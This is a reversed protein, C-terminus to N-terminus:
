REFSITSMRLVLWCRGGVWIILHLSSDSRVKHGSTWLDRTPLQHTNHWMAVSVPDWQLHESRWQGAPVSLCVAVLWSIERSSPCPCVCALQFTSIRFLRLVSFKTLDSTNHGLKNTVHRSVGRPAAPSQLRWAQCTQRQIILMEGTKCWWYAAIGWDPGGTDDGWEWWLVTAPSRSKLFLLLTSITEWTGGCSTSVNCYSQSACHCWVELYVSVAFITIHLTYQTSHIPLLPAPLFTTLCRPTAM